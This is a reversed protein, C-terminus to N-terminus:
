RVDYSLFAVYAAAFGFLAWLALLGADLIVDRAVESLPRVPQVFQPLQNVDFPEMQGTGNVAPAIKEDAFTKHAVAFDEVAREFRAKLNIGNGALSSSAIQYSASPSLRALTMAVRTMRAKQADVRENLRQLFEAYEKEKQAEFDNQRKWAADVWSQNAEYSLRGEAVQRSTTIISDVTANRRLLIENQQNRRFTQAESSVESITAVNTTKSAAVTAVKPIVLVAAVWIVLLIMFSDSPRHVVSSVFLGFSLFVTVYLISIGFLASFCVWDTTSFPIANLTTLLAGMLFALLLPFFLALWMSVFKAFVFTTRPIANSLVLRLTGREKEGCVADFSLVIALLSIVYLVVFTVDIPRFLAFVPEEAFKPDTLKVTGPRDLRERRGIDDDLGTVFIRLPSPARFVQAWGYSHWHGHVRLIEKNLEVKNHFAAEDHHYEQIGLTTTASILGVTTLTIVLFRPRLLLSKLERIVILSLMEDPRNDSTAAGLPSSHM